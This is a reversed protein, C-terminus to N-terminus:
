FNYYFLDHKFIPSIEFTDIYEILNLKSNKDCECCGACIDMGSYIDLEQKKNSPAM